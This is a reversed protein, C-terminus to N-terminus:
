TFFRLIPDVYGLMSAFGSDLVLRSRFFNRADNACFHTATTFEIGNIRGRDVVPRALMTSNCPIDEDNDDDDENKNRDKSNM